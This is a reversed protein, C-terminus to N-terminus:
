ETKTSPDISRLCCRHIRVLYEECFQSSVYKPQNPKALKMKVYDELINDVNVKCPLM